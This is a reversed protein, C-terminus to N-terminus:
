TVNKVPPDCVLVANGNGTDTILVSYEANEVQSNQDVINGARNGNGSWSLQSTADNQFVVGFITYRNDAILRVNATDNGQGVTMQLGGAGDDGGAYKYSYASGNTATVYTWGADPTYGLRLDLTINPTNPM